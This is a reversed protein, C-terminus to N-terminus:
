TTLNSRKSHLHSPDSEYNSIARLLPTGLIRGTPEHGINNSSGINSSLKKQEFFNKSKLNEFFNTKCCNSYPQDREQSEPVLV